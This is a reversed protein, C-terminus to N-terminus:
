ECSLAVNVVSQYSNYDVSDSVCGNAAYIELDSLVGHGNAARETVAVDLVDCMGDGNLDGMVVVTFEISPINNELIILNAGTACYGQANDYCDTVNFGADSLIDINSKLYSLTNVPTILINNKFDIYVGSEHELIPKTFAQICLNKLGYFSYETVDSWGSGINLFSEGANFSYGDDAEVPIAPTGSSCEMKVVVSFVTGPKLAIEEPVSITHYGAREINTTWTAALDGDDPATYDSPLNKYISITLDTNAQLTYTAIDSIVEYSNAKFVNATEPSTGATLQSSYGNGNYTYNNTFRDATQTTYGVFSCLSADEYSIWFYGDLGWDSGWSNKCLWAGAGSPRKFLKFNKKAYDDDWGVITILHNSTEDNKCYYSYTNKNLYSDDSYYAATVSGHEAIWQKIDTEDVLLETSKLVVNSGTDYRTSEDYNGMSSMDSPYFPYDSEEALGSWRSLAATVYMWNGGSNTGSYPNTDTSGDGNALCSTDTVLSNKSFWVLHAESYDATNVDDINKIISDSELASLSAFSWCTGSSGQNKVSTIYGYDRSDYASPLNASYFLIEKSTNEVVETNLENGNSDVFKYDIYGYESSESTEMRYIEFPTEDVASASFCMVQMLIILVLFVSWIKKM